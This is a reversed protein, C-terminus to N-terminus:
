LDPPQTPHFAPQSTISYLFYEHKQWSKYGPGDLGYSAEVGDLRNRSVILRNSDNAHFSLILRRNPIFIYVDSVM